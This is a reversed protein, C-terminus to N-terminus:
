NFIKLRNYSGKKIGLKANYQSREEHDYRWSIGMVDRNFTPFSESSNPKIFMTSYDENEEIRSPFYEAKCRIRSSSKNEVELLPGSSSQMKKAQMVQLQGMTMVCIVAIIMNKIKM